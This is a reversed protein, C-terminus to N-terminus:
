TFELIVSFMTTVGTNSDTVTLQITFDGKSPFTVLIQGPKGTGTFNVPSGLTSWTFTLPGTGTSTSADLLLPNQGVQIVKTGGVLTGLQPSTVTIVVGGTSGPPVVPVAPFTVTGTGAASYAAVAGAIVEVVNNIAPPTATTYGISIAAPAGTLNGYVGTTSSNSVTGVILLSPVPSCSTLIQSITITTSQIVGTQFNFNPTPLPAGAAVLFVTSTITGQQSNYIFIERIEQAGSAISALENAPLNPTLTTLIDTLTAAREFDLTTLGPPATTCTSPTTPTTPSTQAALPIVGALAVLLTAATLTAEMRKWHKM